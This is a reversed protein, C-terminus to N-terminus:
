IPIADSRLPRSMRGRFGFAIMNELSRVAPRYRHHAKAISTFDSSNRRLGVSQGKKPRGTDLARRASHHGVGASAAIRDRQSMTTKHDVGRV